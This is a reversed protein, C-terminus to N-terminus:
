EIGLFGSARGGLFLLVTELPLLMHLLFMVYYKCTCHADIICMGCILIVNLYVYVDFACGDCPHTCICVSM